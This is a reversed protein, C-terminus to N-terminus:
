LMLGARGLERLASSLMNASGKIIAGAAWQHRTLGCAWSRRNQIIAHRCCHAACAIRVLLVAVLLLPLLGLPLLLLVILRGALTIHANAHLPLVSAALAALPQCRVLWLHRWRRTHLATCALRPAHSLLLLLM